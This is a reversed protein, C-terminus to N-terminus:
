LFGRFFVFNAFTLVFGLGFGAIVQPITHAGLRVRSYIMPFLLPLGWFYMGSVTIGLAAIPGGLAMGHVSIKWYRTIVTTIVTNFIYVWMLIIVTAPAKIFLLLIFATIYTVISIAFPKIRREREPIDLSATHGRLKMISVQVIPFIVTASFTIGAVLLFKSFPIFSHSLLLLFTVTACVFPHLLVSILTALGM